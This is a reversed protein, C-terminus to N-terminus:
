QSRQRYLNSDVVGAMREVDLHNGLFRNVRQAEQVPRQLIDNYSVYMAEIYPQEDIWAEIQILHRCFLTTMEEDSIKDTSEGRHVLMQKQSRLTEELSRRMFIVKYKHDAPLHRLLTAIVKVAKDQAGSLWATDGKDLKKVREFEYYGKPNDSDAERIEDTLPAIGGAELMKMMMSTGSRPLGSVVVVPQKEKAPRASARTLAARIKEWFRSGIKAM